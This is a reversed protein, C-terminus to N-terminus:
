DGGGRPAGLDKPHIARHAWADFPSDDIFVDGPLPDPNHKSMAVWELGPLLRRAWMEAYDAGGGSWVVVKGPWTKVYARVAENVRWAEAGAGYPHVDGGGSGLWTVLTDDIDVFLRALQEETM